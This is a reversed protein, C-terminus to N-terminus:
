TTIELEKFRTKRLAQFPQWRFSQVAPVEGNIKLVGTHYGGSFPASAFWSVSTMDRNVLAQGRFNRISPEMAITDAAVWDGSVKELSPVRSQTNIKRPQAHTSLVCNLLIIIAISKM